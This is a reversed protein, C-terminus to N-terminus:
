GRDREGFLPVGPLTLVFASGGVAADEVWLHGGQAEVALKCFYLGVGTGRVQAGGTSIRVFREFIRERQAPPIGPGTDAITCRVGAEAAQADAAPEAALQVVVLGGSPTFKLANDLLNVVMRRVLEEDAWVAPLGEAVELHLGIGRSEALPAVAAVVREVLPPLRMAEVEATFRGAEMLNIDMLSDVMDLMQGSVQQSVAVLHRPQEASVQGALLAMSSMLTSIPNRLDHVVMHTFQTRWQAREEAETVDRVVMLWGMIRGDEALVAAETREAFMTKGGEELTYITSHPTRPLHSWGALREALAEATFGLRAVATPVDGLREGLAPIGLWEAAVPNRQAVRGGSDVMVVGDHIGNLLAQLQEVRRALAEDTRTYLRANQIAGSAQQAIALLLERSWQSLPLAPPYRQIVLVGIPRESTTLPVGLWFEPAPNPLALGHQAAYHQNAPTLELTRGHKAVWQTLDDPVYRGLHTQEGTEGAVLLAQEWGGAENQLAITFQDAPILEHIHAWTRRLVTPLDLTERLSKGVTNLQSFQAVQERLLLRSQWSLWYALAFGAMGAGFIVLAPLGIAVFSLAWLLAFPQSILSFGALPPLIERGFPRLARGHAVHLGLHLLILLAAYGAGLGLLPLIPLEAWQGEAPLQLPTQGGEAHYLANAGWLVAAEGVAQGLRAGWHPRGHPAIQGASHWIPRSIEALALGSALAMLAPQLGLMLLSALALLPALSLRGHPAPQGFNVVVVYLFTFLIIQPAAPHQTAAYLAAVLGVFLLGWVGWRRLFPHM